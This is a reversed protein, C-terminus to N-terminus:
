VYPVVLGFYIDAIQDVDSKEWAMVFLGLFPWEGRLKYKDIYKVVCLKCQKGFLDCGPVLAWSGGYTNIMKNGFFASIELLMQKTSDNFVKEEDKVLISKILELIDDISDSDTIKYKVAFSNALEVNNNFLSFYMHEDADFLYLPVSIEDLKELGYKIVFEAFMELICTFDNDNSYNIYDDQYMPDDTIYRMYVDNIQASTSLALRINNGWWSRDVVVYQEVDNELVRKLQWRNYVYGDYSFGYPELKTGLVNQIIKKKQM